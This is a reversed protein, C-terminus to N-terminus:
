ADEDHNDYFNWTLDAKKETSRVGVKNHCFDDVSHTYGLQYRAYKALILNSSTRTWDGRGGEM